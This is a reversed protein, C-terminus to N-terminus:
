NDNEVERVIEKIIDKVMENDKLKRTKANHREKAFIRYRLKALKEDDIREGPVYNSEM